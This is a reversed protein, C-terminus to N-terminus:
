LLVTLKAHDVNDMQAFLRRSHLLVAGKEDRLVWAAGIIKDKKSWCFGINCKKWGHPPPVWRSRQDIEMKRLQHEKQLDFAQACFWNDAENFSRDVVQCANPILGDFLFSNRAKWINWLLWPIARRTKYERNRHKIMRLLFNMNAYVSDPDFGQSPLPVNSLAWIQRAIECSFLVHM